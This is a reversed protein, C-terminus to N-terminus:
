SLHRLEQQCRSITELYYNSLKKEYACDGNYGIQKLRMNLYKIEAIIKAKDNQQENISTANLHDIKSLM